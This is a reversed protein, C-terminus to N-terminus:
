DIALPVVAAVGVEVVQVPRYRRTAVRLRALSRVLRVGDAVTAKSLGGAREEFTYPIEALTTPACRVMVEPLFKFGASPGGADFDAVRFAFLGSAMDSCRRFEPFMTRIVLHASHSAVRRWTSTLGEASGGAAYRTGIVLDATGTVLPGVLAPLIEPPHQLDADIVVAVDSSVTALAAKVAGAISDRRDPPPRHVCRVPLGLEALEAVRTPTDDDSDDAFVIEWDVARDGLAAATRKAFEEVNRAENRTPAIVAVRQRASAAPTTAAPADENM